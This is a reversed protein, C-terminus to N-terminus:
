RTVTYSIVKYGCRDLYLRDIKVSDRVTIKKTRKHKLKLRYKM